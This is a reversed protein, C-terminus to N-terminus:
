DGVTVFLILLGVLPLVGLLALYMKPPLRAGLLARAGQAVSAMAVGAIALLAAANTMPAAVRLGTLLLLAVGLGIAASRGKPLTALSVYVVLPLALFLLSTM